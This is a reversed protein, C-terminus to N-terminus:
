ELELSAEIQQRMLLETYRGGAAVLGDHTGREVVRGGDLVIIEDAHRAASFRHSVIIRTRRGTVAELATLIEAETQADVASMADDLSGADSTGLRVNDRLTESFLSTEQPVVGIAEQLEEIRMARIDVGELLIRGREPDHARVLLEIMTTKGSGTAGVVGLLNGAPMEADMEQLM